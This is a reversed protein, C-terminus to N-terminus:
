LLIESFVEVSLWMVRRLDYETILHMNEMTIYSEYCPKKHRFGLAESRFPYCTIGRKDDNKLM